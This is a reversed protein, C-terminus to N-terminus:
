LKNKIKKVIIPPEITELEDPIFNILIYMRNFDDISKKFNDKKKIIYIEVKTIVDFLFHDVLRNFGKRKIYNIIKQFINKKIKNTKQIILAEISYRSSDLSNQYLDNILYPQRVDDVIIGVKLKKFNNM